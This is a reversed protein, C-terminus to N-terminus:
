WLPVFLVFRKSITCIELFSLTKWFVPPASRHTRDHILRSPIEAGSVRLGRNQPTWNEFRPPFCRTSSWWILFSRFGSFTTTPPRRPPLESEHALSMVVRSHDPYVFPTALAAICRLSVIGGATPNRVARRNPQLFPLVSLAPHAAPRLYVTTHPQVPEGSCHPGRHCYCWYLCFPLPKRRPTGSLPVKRMNMNASRM